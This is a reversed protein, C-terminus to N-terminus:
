TTTSTSFDVTKVDGKSEAFNEASATVFVQHTGEFKDPLTYTLTIGTSTVVPSYDIYLTYKEAFPVSNVSVTINMGDVSISTITPTELREQFKSAQDNYFRIATLTTTNSDLNHSVSKVKYTRVKDDLKSRYSIKFGTDNVFPLLVTTLTVTDEMRCLEYLKQEAWDKAMDDGKIKINSRLSQERNKVEIKALRLKEQEESTPNEKTSLEGVTKKAEALKNQDEVAKDIDRYRDYISDITDVYKFVPYANVNFPSDPNEDKAEGYYYGDKGWIKIWNKVKSTDYSVSEDIILERLMKDDLIVYSDDEETVMRECVFTGYVNFSMKYYAYLKVLEELLKYATTGTGSEIDYPVLNDNETAKEDFFDVSDRLATIDIIDYDTIGCVELISIMAERISQSNKVITGYADLTGARDGTLDIM